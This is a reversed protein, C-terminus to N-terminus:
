NLVIKQDSLRLGFVQHNKKDLKLFIPYYLQDKKNLLILLEWNKLSNKNKSLNLIIENNVVELSIVSYINKEINGFIYENKSIDRLMELLDLVRM